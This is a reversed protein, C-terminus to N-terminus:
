PVLAVVVTSLSVDSSTMRIDFSRLLPVSGRIKCELVKPDLKIKFGTPSFIGYNGEM